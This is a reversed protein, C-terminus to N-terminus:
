SRKPGSAPVWRGPVDKFFDKLAPGDVPQKGLEATKTRDKDGVPVISLSGDKGITVSSPESTEVTAERGAKNRWRVVLTAALILGATAAGGVLFVAVTSVIKRHRRVWKGLRYRTSPPAATVPEGALYRQVDAALDSATDYRRSRDKELAKMVIWDLDRRLQSGLRIPDTKRQSFVETDEAKLTSVRTSPPPPEDERIM